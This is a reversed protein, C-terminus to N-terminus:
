QVTYIFEVSRTAVNTMIVPLGGRDPETFHGHGFRLEREGFAVADYGMRGMMKFLFESKPPGIAGTISSFDGADVVLCNENQARLSDILTARRAM